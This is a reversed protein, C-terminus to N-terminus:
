VVKAEVSNWLLYLVTQRQIYLYTYSLTCTYSHTNRTLKQLGQTNEINYIFYFNIRAQTSKKKKRKAAGGNLKTDTGRKKERWDRKRHKPAVKLYLAILTICISLFPFFSGIICIYLVAADPLNHSATQPFGM